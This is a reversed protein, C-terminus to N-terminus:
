PVGSVAGWQDYEPLDETVVTLDLVDPTHRAGGEGVRELLHGHLRAEWVWEIPSWEIPGWEIPGWGIPGWRGDIPGSLGMRRVMGMNPLAAPAGRRRGGRM